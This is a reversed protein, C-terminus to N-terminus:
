KKVPIKETYPSNNVAKLKWNGNESIVLNWHGTDQTVDEYNPWKNPDISSLLISLIADHTVVLAIKGQSKKAVADLGIQARTLVSSVPEIGPASDISGWTRIIDQKSQGAYKGYDRDVFCANTEIPTSNYYAIAAATARARLLPSSVITDIEIQAFYRGLALVEEAGIADLPPDLHGRLLGNANLTTRGHRVLYIQTTPHSTNSEEIRQYNTKLPEKFM